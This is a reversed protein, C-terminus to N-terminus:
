TTNSTWQLPSPPGYVWERAHYTVGTRKIERWVNQHAAFSGSFVGRDANYTFPADDNDNLAQCVVVQGQANLLDELKHQRGKFEADTEYESKALAITARASYLGWALTKFSARRCADFLGEDPRLTNMAIAVVMDKVPDAKRKPAHQVAARKSSQARAALVSQFPLSLIPAVIALRRM